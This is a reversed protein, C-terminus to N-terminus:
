FLEPPSFIRASTLRAIAACGETQSTMTTPRGESHHPALDDRHRLRPPRSV